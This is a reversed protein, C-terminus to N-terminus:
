ALLPIVEEVRRSVFVWELPALCATGGLLLFLFESCCKPGSAWARSVVGGYYGLLKASGSVCGRGM